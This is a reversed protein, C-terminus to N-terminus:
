VGIGLPSHMQCYSVPCFHCQLKAESPERYVSCCDGDGDGIGGGDGDGDGVGDGIGGGYRCLACEHARCHFEGEPVKELGACYAHYIRNCGPADCLIM